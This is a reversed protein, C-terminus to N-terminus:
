RQEAPPQAEDRPRWWGLTVIVGFWQGFSWSSGTNGVAFEGGGSRLSRTEGSQPSAPSQTVASVLSQTDEPSKPCNPLELQAPAPPPWYATLTAPVQNPQALPAIENSPYMPSTAQDVHDVQDAHDVENMPSPSPSITSPSPSPSSPLSLTQSDSWVEYSSRDAGNDAKKNNVVATAAQMLSPPAVFAPSTKSRSSSLSSFDTSISTTASPPQVGAPSANSLSSFSSFDTNVSATTSPVLAPSNNSRSSSGSASSIDTSCSTTTSSSPLSPSNGVPGSNRDEPSKSPSMVSRQSTFETILDKVDEEKSSDDKVVLDSSLSLFSATACVEGTVNTGKTRDSALSHYSSVSACAEDNTAQTIVSITSELSKNSGASENDM